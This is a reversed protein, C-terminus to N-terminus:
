PAAPRPAAWLVLLRCVVLGVALLVLLMFLAFAEAVRLEAVAAAMLPMFSFILATVTIAILPLPRRVVAPAALLCGAAFLAVLPLKLLTGWQLYAPGTMIELAAKPQYVLFSQVAYGPDQRVTQLFVDRMVREYNDWRFDLEPASTRYIWDSDGVLYRARDEGRRVLEQNFLLYSVQDDYVPMGAPIGYRVTREPNNHLATVLNHWFVHGQQATADRFHANFGTQHHLWLGGGGLLVLLVPWLPARGGAIRRATGPVAWLVTALAIVAFLLWAASSRANVILVLLLMQLAATALTGPLPPLRYLLALMLHFMPVLGLISLFRNGQILNIDQRPTAPLILMMAYHVCVVLLLFFLVELQHRFVIAILLVSGALLLMYLYFLSTSAIGFLAFALIFLLAMGKEDQMYFMGGAAPDAISVARDLAADLREHDSMVDFYHTAGVARVDEKQVSLGAERLTQNVLRFSSYGDWTGYRVLTIAVAMSDRHRSMSGPLRAHLGASVAKALTLVLLAGILVLLVWRRLACGRIPPSDGVVM